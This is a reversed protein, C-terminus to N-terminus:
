APQLLNSPGGKRARVREWAHDHYPLVLVNIVPELLAALGGLALSGSAAYMVGFAVGTHLATQSLKEALRALMANSKLRAISGRLRKWAREHLPLLAVNVLPELLAAVGGLAASGTMAWTVGFAISMHTVVQSLTKAATVM